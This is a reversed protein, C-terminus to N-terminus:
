AFLSHIADSAHNHTGILSTDSVLTLPVSVKVPAGIDQMVALDLATISTRFAM